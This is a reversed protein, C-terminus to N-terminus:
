IHILSLGQFVQFQGDCHRAADILSAHNERDCFVADNAEVLSNLTGLNAAFGTPFLLAADTGEFLALKRELKNHLPSRGTVLASATSGLQTTSPADHSEFALNLYDNAGFNILSRGDIECRGQALSTVVRAERLRDQSRLNNLREELRGAWTDSM